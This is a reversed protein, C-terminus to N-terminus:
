IETNKIFRRKKGFARRSISNWVHNQVSISVSNDTSDLLNGNDWIRYRVNSGVNTRVDKLIDKM